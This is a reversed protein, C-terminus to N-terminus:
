EPPGDALWAAGSPFSFEALSAPRIESSTGPITPVVYRGGAV